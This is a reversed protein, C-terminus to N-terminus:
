KCSIKKGTHIFAYTILNIKRDIVFRMFDSDVETRLSHKRMEEWEAYLYRNLIQIQKQKSWNHALLSRSHLFKNSKEPIRTEASIRLIRRFIDQIGQIKKNCDLKTHIRLKRPTSASIPDKFGNKTASFTGWRLWNPSNTNYSFSCSNGDSTASRSSFNLKGGMAVWSM